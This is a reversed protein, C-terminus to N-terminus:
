GGTSNIGHGSFFVMAVDKSTTQREIWDLGDLIGDKTAQKDTLLVTEVERYLGGQQAKVAREFDRADKGSFQLDLNDDHYDGVGVALVYLKPKITFTKKGSWQIAVRAPESKGHANEAILSIEVDRKPIILTLAETEDVKPRRRKGKTELSIPQGDLYAKIGTIKAGSASSVQYLVSLQRQQTTAGFAPSLIRVVPPLMRSIETQRHKRRTSANALQVAQNEDWVNLQQKIVDPRYYVARFQAAPYFTAAKDQGQNLHWGILADGGASAAYYGSPTWLVWRKQDNHPFLTLQHKGDRLRYWRLTGDGFAAVALQGDGSINVAWAAGPTAIQWQLEGQRNYLRLAWETGLLFQAQNPSVAVSRSTEHRKLILTKGNLKPHRTDQWGTISLRPAETRAKHLGRSHKQFQKLTRQALSFTAAQKGGYQYGFQVTQGDDSLLLTGHQGRFDAIGAKNRYLLQHNADIAGFTPGSAAYFLGGAKRPQLNQITNNALGLIDKFAGRGARRWHRIAHSGDGYYRGGAYLTAGDASWAVRGLNGNNVGDINPQYQLSLDQAALINVNVSDAFGVAIFRGNPSFAAQYPQKGGPAKHKRLLRYNPGYVRLYGDWGTTLLQGNAAFDVSYSDSGYASDKFLRQGQRDYVRLGEGGHLVAALRASDDSWALDNIVNGLASIRRLLKGSSTSFLYIDDHDSWGAVAVIDGKPALAVAYLKGENGDGIPVRITKLLAGTKAQWLRLTKDDSVTALLRNDADVSIRNIVATHMGTELQLIPKTSPTVALSYLPFGLLTYLFLVLAPLRPQHPKM